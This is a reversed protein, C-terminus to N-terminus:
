ILFLSRFKFLLTRMFLQVFDIVCINPKNIKFNEKQNRVNEVYSYKDILNLLNLIQFGPKIKLVVVSIEFTRLM